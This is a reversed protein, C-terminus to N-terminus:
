ATVSFHLESHPKIKWINIGDLLWELEHARIQMERSTFKKPWPFRDKELRKLWLAFGTKDWYLIRLRSKDRNTFVFLATSNFVNKGLESTVVSVLGDISMRFDVPRTCVFIETFSGLAKM